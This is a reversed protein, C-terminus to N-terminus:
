KFLYVSRVKTYQLSFNEIRVGTLCSNKVGLEQQACLKKKNYTWM